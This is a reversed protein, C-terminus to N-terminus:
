EFAYAWRLIRADDAPCMRLAQREAARRTPGSGFGWANGRGIALAIYRNYGWGAIFADDEGCEAIARREAAARSDYGHASGWRGTSQSFALATYGGAIASSALSFLALLVALVLAVRPAGSRRHRVPSLHSHSPLLTTMRPM